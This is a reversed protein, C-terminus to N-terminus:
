FDISWFRKLIDSDGIDTVLGTNYMMTNYVSCFYTTGSSSRYLCHLPIGYELTNNRVTVLISLGVLSNNFIFYSVGSYFVGSFYIVTVASKLQNLLVKRIVTFPSFNPTQVSPISEWLSNLNMMHLNRVSPSTSFM